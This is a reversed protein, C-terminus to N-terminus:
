APWSQSSMITTFAAGTPVNGDRVVQVPAPTCLGYSCTDDKRLTSCRLAKLCHVLYVSM